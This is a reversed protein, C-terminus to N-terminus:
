APRFALYNAKKEAEGRIITTMRLPTGIKINEPTSIDVELIQAAIRPGEELEVIGVCYPNKANYGAEAMMVPPVSIVTYAVLKGEGSFDIIESEQQHCTPCILKQPIAHANCVKCRSGILKGDNLAKYFDKSNLSYNSM